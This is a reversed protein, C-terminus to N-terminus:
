FKCISCSLRIYFFICHYSFISLAIAHRKHIKVNYHCNYHLYCKCFMAFHQLVLIHLVFRSALAFWFILVYCALVTVTRLQLFWKCLPPFSFSICFPILCSLLLIFSCSPFFFVVSLSKDLQISTKHKVTDYKGPLSQLEAASRCILLWFCPTPCIGLEFSFSYILTVSLKHFIFLVVHLSMSFLFFLSLPQRWSGFPTHLSPPSVTWRPACRFPPHYCVWRPHHSIRVKYLTVIEKVMFHYFEPVPACLLQPIEM